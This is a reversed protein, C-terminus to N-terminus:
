RASEILSIFQEVKGNATNRISDTYDFRLAFPHGLNGQILTTLDRTESETLARAMVLRVLIEDLSTQIMQMLEIPAIERLRGEYGM